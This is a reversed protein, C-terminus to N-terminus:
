CHSNRDTVVSSLLCHAFCWPLHSLTKLTRLGGWWSLTCCKPLGKNILGPSISSDTAHLKNLPDGISKEQSTFPCKQKAHLTFSSKNKGHNTFRYNETRSFSIKSKKTIRSIHTVKEHNTFWRSKRSYDEVKKSIYANKFSTVVGFKIYFMGMRHVQPHFVSRSSVVAVTLKSPRSDAIM